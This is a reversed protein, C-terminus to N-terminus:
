SELPVILVPINSKKIIERSVSGMLAQYLFGHEHHGMIILDIHLKKVEEMITAIAAGQLLLATATIGQKQLETAYEQLQRHKKRLQSARSDRTNQPGIDYGVFAPDAAAVHILWVKSDFKTALQVAKDLLPTEDGNFDIAVLLNEM